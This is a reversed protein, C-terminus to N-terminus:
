MANLKPSLVGLLMPEAFPASFPNSLKLVSSFKFPLSMELLLSANSSFILRMRCDSLDEDGEFTGKM